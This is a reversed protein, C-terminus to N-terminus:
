GFPNVVPGPVDPRWGPDRRQHGNVGPSDQGANGHDDRREEPVIVVTPRSPPPPPPPQQTRQGQPPMRGSLDRYKKALRNVNSFWMGLQVVADISDGMAIISRGHKRTFKNKLAFEAFPRAIRERQEQDLTISEVERITLLEEDVGRFALDIYYNTALRILVNAFFHLWEDINPIGGKADRDLSGPPLARLRKPGQPTRAEGDANVSFAMGEGPPVPGGAIDDLTIDDLPGSSTGEGPLM